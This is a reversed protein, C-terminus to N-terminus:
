GGGWAGNDTALRTLDEDGIGLGRAAMRGQDLDVTPQPDLVDARAVTSEDVFPREVAGAQEM